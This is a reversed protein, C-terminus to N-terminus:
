RKGDNLAGIEEIRKLVDNMMPRRQPDVEVCDLALEILQMMDAHSEKEAVIELDLFETSGDESVNSRVWGVLDEEGEGPVRGSIVELLVLGFCFVDAKHTLAYKKDQSVVPVMGIALKYIESSSLIPQFGLDGLKPHYDENDNGHVILVNSSKLNAHPVEHFPLCQHLHTLGRAIGKAINLRAAWKLPIRAKGRNDHLLQFLSGGSVHEYVVLKEEKSYQFSIIEVLNEHRLKGLLEMQRFFEDKRMGQINHLRKVVIVLGSQLTVRFTSGLEGKGILEAPARMLDDFDFTAKEINSFMLLNEKAEPISELSKAKKTVVSESDYASQKPKKTYRKFYYLFGFIGISVVAVVAIVVLVIIWPRLAKSSSSTSPPRGNPPVQSRPPASSCPKALPRGCLELNHAFSTTPFGQLVSNNPIRGELSNHSVNFVRLAQQEFPPISGSLNNDQLELNSLNPLALFELPISGSFQNRAFSVARLHILDKLNPLPGQIANGSLNLTTLHWVNQLAASPLSGSLQTGSLDIAVVRSKSCTIGFWLSQNNSCPSGTWNLYLNAPYSFFSSLSDRLQLLDDREDPYLVQDTSNLGSASVILKLMLAATVLISVSNSRRNM